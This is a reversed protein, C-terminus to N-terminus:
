SNAGIRRAFKWAGVLAFGASVLLMSGAEPVVVEPPGNVAAGLSVSQKYISAASAPESAGFLGNTLSVQVETAGRTYPTGATTLAANIDVMGSLTWPVDIGANAILTRSLSMSSTLTLPVALVVGDVAIVDVQLLFGAGVQTAPGMGSLSYVGGENLSLSKIGYDLDATMGFTLQGSTADVSNTIPTARFAATPTFTL